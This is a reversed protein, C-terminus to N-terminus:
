ELFKAIRFIRHMDHIYVTIEIGCIKFNSKKLFYLPIFLTSCKKVINLSILQNSFNGEHSLGLEKAVVRNSVYLVTMM